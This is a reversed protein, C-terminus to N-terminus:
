RASTGEEDSRTPTSCRTPGPGECVPDVWIGARLEQASDSGFDAESRALRLTYVGPLLYRGVPESFEYTGHPSVRASFHRGLRAWFQDDTHNLLRLRQDHHIVLCRPVIEDFSPIEVIGVAGESGDCIGAAPSDSEPQERPTTTTTSVPQTTVTTKSSGDTGLSTTGDTTATSSSSEVPIAATDTSGASSVQVDKGSLPQDGCASCLAFASVVLCTVVRSSM